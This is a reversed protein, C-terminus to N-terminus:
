RLDHRFNEPSTGYRLKFARSFSSASTFGCEEAIASLKKDTDSMLQIVRNFRIQDMAQRPSMQLVEHFNRRLHAQSTGTARAITALSPAEELRQSYEGLAKEVRSEAIISPPVLESRAHEFVMMSLEMLIHEMCIMTGPSPVPWYKEAQTGLERLRRVERGTLPLSVHERGELLRPLPEPVYQYHFVVIQASKGPLGTWSHNSHKQSLWLRHAHPGDCEGEHTVRGIKGRLVAQFEWCPRRRMPVPLPNDYYQRTGTKFYTLM